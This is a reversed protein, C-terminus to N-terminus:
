QNKVLQMVKENCEVEAMGLGTSSPRFARRSGMVAFCKDVREDYFYSINEPEFSVNNTTQVGCGALIATSVLALAILTKKM